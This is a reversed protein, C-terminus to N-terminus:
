GFLSLSGGDGLAAGEWELMRLKTLAGGSASFGGSAGQAALIRHCPVVPAFPNAGLAQGVARALGKGGLELAMDGYSRTHGPAIALALRYVHRHFEPVGEWDLAMDDLLPLQGDAAWRTSAFQARMDPLVMGAATLLPQAFAWDAAGPAAIDALSYAGARGALLVQVGAAAQLAAAPLSAVSLAQRYNGPRRKTAGELLRERAAEPQPEPLRLAVVGHQGWAIACVGLRSTFLAHGTQAPQWDGTATDSPKPTTTRM